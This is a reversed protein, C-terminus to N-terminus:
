TADPPAPYPVFAERAHPFERAAAQFAAVCSPCGFGVKVRPFRFIRRDDVTSPNLRTEGRRVLESRIHGYNPNACRIIDGGVRIRDPTPWMPVSAGCRICHVHPRGDLFHVPETPTPHPRRPGRRKITTM